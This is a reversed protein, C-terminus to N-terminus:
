VGRSLRKFFRKKNKNKYINIVPKSEEILKNKLGDYFDDMELESNFDISKVVKAIEEFVVSYTDESTKAKKIKTINSLNIMENDIEIYM